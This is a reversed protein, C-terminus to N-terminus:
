FPRPEAAISSGSAPNEAFVDFRCDSAAFSRCNTLVDRFVGAERRRGPASREPAAPLM